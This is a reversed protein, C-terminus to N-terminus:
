KTLKDLLPLLISREPEPLIAFYAKHPQILDPGTTKYEFGSAYVKWSDIGGYNGYLELDSNRHWRPQLTLMSEQTHRKRAMYSTYEWEPPEMSWTGDNNKFIEVHQTIYNNTDRQDYAFIEISTSKRQVSISLSKTLDRSHSHYNDEKGEYHTWGYAPEAQKRVSLPLTAFDAVFEALLDPGGEWFKTTTPGQGKLQQKLQAGAGGTSFPQDM